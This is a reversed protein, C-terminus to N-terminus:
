EKIIVNYWSFVCLSLLLNNETTSDMKLKGKNKPDHKLEDTKLVMKEIRYREKNTANKRIAIM